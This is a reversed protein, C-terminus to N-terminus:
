PSFNLEVMDDRFERKGTLMLQDLALFTMQGNFELLGLRIAPGTMFLLVYMLAGQSGTAVRAVVGAIPLVPIEIVVLGVELQVSLVLVYLADFAVFSRDAIFNDQGGGAIAAMVLVVLVITFEPELAFMAVDTRGPFGDFDTAL